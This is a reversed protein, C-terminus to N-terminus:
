PVVQYTIPGSLRLTISGKLIGSVPIAFPFRQVYAAFDARINGSGPPLVARWNRLVGSVLDARAGTTHDHTPHTPIFNCAFTMEGGRLIAPKVEDSGGPSEQNTVDEFERTRTDFENFDGVEAFLDFGETPTAGDGILLQFGRGFVAASPFPM